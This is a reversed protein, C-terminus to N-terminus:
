GNKGKTKALRLVAVEALSRQSVGRTYEQIMALTRHGTIAAIEHTSCGAEALRIATLRRLGHLGLARPLRIRELYHPLRKSLFGPRWPKGLHELITVTQRDAKWAALEARLEPVVPIQLPETTKEQTLRIFGEREDYDAWRLACLDGRRQGTYYALVVARRFPEPLERMARQAQDDDWAPLHGRRLSKTLRLAPSGHHGDSNDLYNRDLAWSFLAGVTRCFCEAAGDGRDNAIEDRITLLHSRRIEALPVLKMASFLPQLYRVYSEQTRPRLNNWEPSRQWRAIVSAVTHEAVVATPQRSYRYQKVTGNALTRRVSYAASDNNKL